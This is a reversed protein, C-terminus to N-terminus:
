GKELVLGLILPLLCKLSTSGRLPLAWAPVREQSRQPTLPPMSGRTADSAATRATSFGEIEILKTLQAPDELIRGFRARSKTGSLVVRLLCALLASRGEPSAAEFQPSPSMHVGRLLPRLAARSEHLLLEDTVPQEGHAKLIKWQEVRITAVLPTLTEVQRVPAGAQAPVELRDDLAQMVKAPLVM